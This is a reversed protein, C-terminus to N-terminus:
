HYNGARRCLTRWRGWEVKFKWSTVLNRRGVLLAYQWTLFQVKLADDLVIRVCNSNPCLFGHELSLRQRGCLGSFQIGVMLDFSQALKLDIVGIQGHVFVDSAAIAM